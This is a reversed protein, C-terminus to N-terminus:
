AEHPGHPSQIEGFPDESSVLGALAARLVQRVAPALRVKLYQLFPYFLAAGFAYFIV